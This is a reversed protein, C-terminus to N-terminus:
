RALVIQETTAFTDGSLRVFYTGSALGTGDVNMEHWTGPTLPGEHLMQVRRGLLDYVHVSVAQPERLQLKVTASTRFPSPGVRVSYAEDLRVTVLRPDTLTPSGDSDVQRLRFAHTGAALPESRFRYQQPAATTGAGEVFGVQTWSRSPARHEIYFGDNNTESVTAWTLVAVTGDAGASFRSLEVPLPGACDRNNGTNSDGPSSNTIEGCNELEEPICGEGLDVSVVFTQCQGSALNETVTLTNGAVQSGSPASPFSYTVSCDPPSGAQLDAVQDEFTYSTNQDPGENCVEIGFQVNTTGDTRSTPGEIITKSVALDAEQAFTPTVLPFTLLATLLLGWM